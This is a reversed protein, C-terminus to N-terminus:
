AGVSGAPATEGGAKSAIGFGGFFAIGEVVLEPADPARAVRPRADGVGGIGIVRATVRWGDPVLIQGGGFIVLVDLRVGALDPTAGRLDIDGGGFACVVRGGRLSRANSAFELRDFAAM